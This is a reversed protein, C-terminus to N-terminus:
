IEEGQFHFRLQLSVEGSSSFKKPQESFVDYTEWHILSRMFCCVCDSMPPYFVTFLYLDDEWSQVEAGRWTDEMLIHSILPPLASSCMRRGGHLEISTWM